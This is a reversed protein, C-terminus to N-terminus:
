WWGRDIVEREFKLDFYKKAIEPYKKEIERFRPMYNVNADKAPHECYERFSKGIFNHVTNCWGRVLSYFEKDPGECKNFRMIYPACGYTMLIKIKEWMNILDQRWFVDNYKGTKDFGCLVYLVTRTRPEVIERWIQLKKIILEKDEINDFAFIYNGHYRCSSIVKAKEKTLLRIDMGQKFEFPKNSAILEDFVERWRPYGLINDDLLSIGKLTPDLFEKLHAHFEVRTKNRNVCFECGRFCGRTM